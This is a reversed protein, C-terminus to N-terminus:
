GGLLDLVEGLLEDPHFPKVLVADAARLETGEPPTGTIVIIPLDGLQHRAQNLLWRGDRRGPMQLDTILLDFTGALLADLAPEAADFECVAASHEALHCYILSRILPDDDVVLIRWAM